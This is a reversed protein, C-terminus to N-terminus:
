KLVKVCICAKRLSLITDVCFDTVELTPNLIVSHRSEHSCGNKLGTRLSVLLNFSYSIFSLDAEKYGLNM